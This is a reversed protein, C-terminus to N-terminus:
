GLLTSELSAHLWACFAATHDPLLPVLSVGSAYHEAEAAAPYLLVVRQVARSGGPLGISGLYTYADALAAAPLSGQADLRYKADLVLLTCPQGPRECEITLDPIHTHSDLSLPSAPATGTTQRQAPAPPAYRPQYRLRLRAAQWDLVLLPTNSPLALSWGPQDAAAPTCLQQERLTAGPLALLAQAAQIACWYEYLRPMDHVPVQFLPSEVSFFPTQRVEQWLRYVQRYRPDRSLVHSSGRFAARSQVEALFPLRRLHNLRRALEQSRAALTHPQGSHRTAAETLLRARQWLADLLRKLLRNEYTDASEVSVRQLPSHQPDAMAQTLAAADLRSVDRVQELPSEQLRTHLHTHPQRAIARVVPELL